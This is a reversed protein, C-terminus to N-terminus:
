SLTSVLTCPMKGHFSRLGGRLIWCMEGFNWFLANQADNLLLGGVSLVVAPGAVHMGVAATTVISGREDCFLLIAELDETGRALRCFSALSLFDGPKALALM